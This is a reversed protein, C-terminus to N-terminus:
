LGRSEPGRLSVGHQLVMVAGGDEGDGIQFAGAGKVALREAELEGLFARLFADEDVFGAGGPEDDVLGFMGASVPGIGDDPADAIIDIRDDGRELRLPRAEFMIGADAPELAIDVM